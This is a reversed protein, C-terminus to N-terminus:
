GRRRQHPTAYHMEIDAPSVSRGSVSLILEAIEADTRGAQRFQEIEDSIMGIFAPLPFREDDLGLQRRMAKQVVVAEEASFVDENDVLAKVGFKISDISLVDIDKVAKCGRQCGKGLTSLGPKYGRRTQM